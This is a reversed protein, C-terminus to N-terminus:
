FLYIVRCFNIFVGCCLYLFNRFTILFRSKVSNLSFRCVQGVLVSSGVDVEAPHGFDFLNLWSKGSHLLTCAVVNEFPKGCQSHDPTGPGLCGGLLHSRWSHCSPHRCM